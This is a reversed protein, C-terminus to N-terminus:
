QRRRGRLWLGIGMLGLAIGLVGMVPEGYM